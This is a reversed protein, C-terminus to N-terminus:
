TNIRGLFASRAAVTAPRQRFSRPAWKLEMDILLHLNAVDGIWRKYLDFTPLRWYAKAAQNSRQEICEIANAVWDHSFM